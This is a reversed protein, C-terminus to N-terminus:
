GTKEQGNATRERRQRILIEERLIKIEAPATFGLRIRRGSKRGKTTLYKVQILGDSIHVTEGPLLTLVLM